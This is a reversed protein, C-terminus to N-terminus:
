DRWEDDKVEQRGGSRDVCRYVKVVDDGGNAYICVFGLRPMDRHKTSHTLIQAYGALKTPDESISVSLYLKGPNGTHKAKCDLGICVRNKPLAYWLRPSGEKTRYPKPKAGLVNVGLLRQIASAAKHAVQTLLDAREWSIPLEATYAHVSAIADASHVLEDIGAEELWTMAYQFVGSKHNARPVFTGDGCKDCTVECIRKAIASVFEGSTLYEMCLGYMASLWCYAAGRHLVVDRDNRMFIHGAREGVIDFMVVVDLPDASRLYQLEQWVEEPSANVLTVRMPGYVAVVGNVLSMKDRVRGCRSAVQKLYREVFAIVAWEGTKLKCMFSVFWICAFQVWFRDPIEDLGVDERARTGYTLFAAEDMVDALDFELATIAMLVNYGPSDLMKRTRAIRVTPLGGSVVRGDDYMRDSKCAGAEDYVFGTTRVSYAVGPELTCVGLVCVDRPLVVTVTQLEAVDALQVRCSRVLTAGSRVCAIGAATFRVVVSASGEKAQVVNAYADHLLFEHMPVAVIGGVDRGTPKEIRVGDYEVTKARKFAERSFLIDPMIRHKHGVCNDDM